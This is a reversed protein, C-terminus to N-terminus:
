RLKESKRIAERLEEELEDVKKFAEAKRAEMKAIAEARELISRCREATAIDIMRGDLEVSATGRSVGEEFADLARRMYSVEDEPISFGRNLHIIPAPHIVGAGKFGLKRSNVAAELIKELEGWNFPEVGILGMPQIGAAYADMLVKSNAYWLEKGESTTRVGMERTLDEAGVSITVIRPSACAIEYAKIVGLASEVTVSIQISGPSIGRRRELESIVEARVKVEEASEVKPLSVCALGPWISAELDKVAQSIPRNIRVSVDSGGKGVLPISDKILARAAEKEAEPVSDELDMVYCDAGRTYAKQTFRPVNVPFTMSSRRVFRRMDTNHVTSM